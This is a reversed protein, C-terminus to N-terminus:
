DDVAERGTMQEVFIRFFLHSSHDAIPQEGLKLGGPEWWNVHASLLRWAHERLQRDEPSDGLEEYRGDVLVSRWQRGEGREEVLVCVQPNARMCEIKKGPMSFAYLWNGSYCCYVPVVYPRGGHACALHCLHNNTLAKTCEVTTLARLRM